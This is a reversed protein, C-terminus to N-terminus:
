RSTRAVFLCQRFTTSLRAAFLRTPLYTFTRAMVLCKLLLLINPGRVPSPQFQRFRRATLLCIHFTDLTRAAFLHISTGAFTIPACLYSLFRGFTRATCPLVMRTNFPITRIRTCTRSVFGPQRMSSDLRTTHAPCRLRGPSGSAHCARCCAPSATPTSNTMSSHCSTKYEILHYPSAVAGPTLVVPTDPM